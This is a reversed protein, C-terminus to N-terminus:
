YCYSRDQDYIWRTGANGGNPFCKECREYKGNGDCLHFMEDKTQGTMDGIENILNGSKYELTACNSEVQSEFDYNYDEKPCICTNQKVTETCAGDNYCKVECFREKNGEYYWRSSCTDNNLRGEFGQWIENPKFQNCREAAPECTSDKSYEYAEWRRWGWPNYYHTCDECSVYECSPSDIRENILQGDRYKMVGIKKKQGKNCGCRKEWVTERCVKRGQSDRRGRCDSVCVNYVHDQKRQRCFGHDLPSDYSRRSNRGEANGHLGMDRAKTVNVIGLGKQFKSVMEGKPADQGKMKVLLFKKCHHMHAYFLFLALILAFRSAFAMM